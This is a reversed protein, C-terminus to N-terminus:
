RFRGWAQEVGARVAADARWALSRGPEVTLGWLLALDLVVTVLFVARFPQKRTKHRLLPQALLAGPWGGILSWVHLTNEAVRSRGHRAASKDLAYLVLSVLSAFSAVAPVLAPVAAVGAAGWLAALPVLMYLLLWLRPRRRSGGLRSARRVQLRGQPDRAPEFEVADGQQPRGGGRIASVHLFHREGGGAPEVFGFGRDDNWAVVTGRIM